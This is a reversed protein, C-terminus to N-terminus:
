GSQTPVFLPRGSSSRSLFVLCVVKESITVFASSRRPPRLVTPRSTRDEECRLFLMRSLREKRGLILSEAPCWPRRVPSSGTAKQDVILREAMSSYAGHM